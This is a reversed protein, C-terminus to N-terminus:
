RVIPGATSCAAMGGNWDAKVKRACAFKIKHFTNYEAMTTM